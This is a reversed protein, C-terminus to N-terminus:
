WELDKNIVLTFILSPLSSVTGFVTSVLFCQLTSNIAHLLRRGGWFNLIYPHPQLLNNCAILGVKCHGRADVYTYMKLVTDDRCGIYILKVSKKGLLLIPMGLSVMPKNLLFQVCIQM